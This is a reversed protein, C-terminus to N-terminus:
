WGRTGRPYDAAVVRTGCARAELVPPDFGEHSSPFVFADCSSYLAPLNDEPLPGLLAMGASKGERVLRSLHDNSKDKGDPGGVPALSYGPILGERNMGLFACLLISLNKKPDWRSTNLLYPAIPWATTGFAIKYRLSAERNLNTPYPRHPTM